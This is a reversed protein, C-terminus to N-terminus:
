KFSRQRPIGYKCVDRRCGVSEDVSRGCECTAHGKLKYYERVIYRMESKTTGLRRDCGSGCGCGSEALEKELENLEQLYDQVSIPTLEVREWIESKREKRWEVGADPM